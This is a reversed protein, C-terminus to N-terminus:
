VATRSQAAAAAHNINQSRRSDRTKHPAFVSSQRKLTTQKFVEWCDESFLLPLIVIIKLALHSVLVNSSVYSEREWGETQPM